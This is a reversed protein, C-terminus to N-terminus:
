LLWGLEYPRCEYDRTMPFLTDMRCRRLGPAPHSHQFARVAKMPERRAVQAMDCQGQRFRPRRWSTPRAPAIRSPAQLHDTGGAERLRSRWPAMAYQHVSYVPCGEPRETVFTTTGGGNGAPRCHRGGACAEAAAAGSSRRAVLPAGARYRISRIRLLRHPGAIPTPHHAAQASFPRVRNLTSSGQPGDRDPRIHRRSARGGLALADLAVVTAVPDGSALRLRGAFSLHPIFIRPKPADPRWHL